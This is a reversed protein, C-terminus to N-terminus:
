KRRVNVIEPNAPFPPAEGKLYTDLFWLVCANIALAPARGWPIQAQWAADCFTMHEAGGIQLWTANVTAKNFLSQNEALFASGPANIAVFPKQLGASSIRRM